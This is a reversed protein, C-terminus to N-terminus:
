PQSYFNGVLCINKSHRLVLQHPIQPRSDAFVHSHSENVRANIFEGIHLIIFQLVIYLSFRYAGFM